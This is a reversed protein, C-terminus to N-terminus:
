QNIRSDTYTKKEKGARERSSRQRDSAYDNTQLTWKPQMKNHLSFFVGFSRGCILHEPCNKEEEEEERGLERQERM